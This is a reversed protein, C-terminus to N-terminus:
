QQIVSKNVYDEDDDDEDDDDDLGSTGLTEPVVSMESLPNEKALL